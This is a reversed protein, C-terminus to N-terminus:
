SRDHPIVSKTAIMLADAYYMILRLGTSVVRGVRSCVCPIRSIQMFYRCQHYVDLLVWLRM